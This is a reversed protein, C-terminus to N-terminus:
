RAKTSETHYIRGIKGLTLGFQPEGSWARARDVYMTTVPGAESYYIISRNPTGVGITSNWM